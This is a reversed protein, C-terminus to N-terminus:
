KITYIGTKNCKVHEQGVMDASIEEVSEGLSECKAKAREIDHISVTQYCGALVFSLLLVSILKM